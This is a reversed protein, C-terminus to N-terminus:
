IGKIDVNSIVRSKGICSENKLGSFFKSIKGENEITKNLKAHVIDCEDNLKNEIITTDDNRLIPIVAQMKQAVKTTQPSSKESNCIITENESDQSGNSSKITKQSIESKTSMNPSHQGTEPVRLKSIEPNKIEQPINNKVAASSIEEIQIEEKTDNIEVNLETIMNQEVSSKNIDNVEIEQEVILIEENMNEIDEINSASSVTVLENIEIIHSGTVNPELSDISQKEEEANNMINRSINDVQDIDQTIKLDAPLESLKEEDPAARNLISAPVKQLPPLEPMILTNQIEANNNLNIDKTATLITHCGGCAVNNIIFGELIDVKTPM